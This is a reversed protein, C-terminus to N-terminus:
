VQSRLYERMRAVYAEIQPRVDQGDCLRALLICAQEAEDPDAAIWTESISVGRYEPCCAGPSKPLDGLILAEIGADDADERAVREAEIADAREDEAITPPHMM